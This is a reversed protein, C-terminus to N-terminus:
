WFVKVYLMIKINLDSLFIVRRSSMSMVVKCWVLVKENPFRSTRYTWYERTFSLPSKRALIRAVPPVMTYCVIRNDPDAGRSADRSTLFPTYKEASGPIYEFRTAWLHIRSSATICEGINSLFSSLIWSFILRHVLIHCSAIPLVCFRVHPRSFSSFYFLIFIFYFFHKLVYHRKEVSLQSNFSCATVWESLHYIIYAADHSAVSEPFFFGNSSRALQVEV